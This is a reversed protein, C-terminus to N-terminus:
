LKLEDIYLYLVFPEVLEAQVLRQGLKQILSFDSLKGLQKMAVLVNNKDPVFGQDLMELFARIAEETHGGNVFGGFLAAYTMKDPIPGDEKMTNLILQTAHQHNGYACIGLVVNYLRAHITKGTLKLRWLARMAELGHGAVCYMALLKQHIAAAASKQHEELAWGAIREAETHLNKEYEKILAKETEELAGLMGQKQYVRLDRLTRTLQQQESVAALLAGNYMRFSLKMKHSERAHAVLEMAQRQCNSRIMKWMLAVLTGQDDDDVHDLAFEVADEKCGRDWYACVLGQLIDPEPQLGVCAMEQLLSKVDELSGGSGVVHMLWKSMISMMLDRTDDEVRGAGQMWDFVELAYWMDRGERSFYLLILQLDQASLRNQMSDLVQQPERVMVEVEYIAAAVAADPDGDSSCCTSLGRNRRKRREWHPEKILFSGLKALPLHASFFLAAGYRASGYRCAASSTSPNCLQLRLCTKEFICIGQLVAM